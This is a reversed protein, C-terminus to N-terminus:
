FLLPQQLDAPVVIILLKCFNGFEAYLLHLFFALIIEIKHHLDQKQDKKLVFLQFFGRIVYLREWLCGSPFIPFGALNRNLPLNAACGGHRGGPPLHGAPGSSSHPRCGTQVISIDSRNLVISELGFVLLLGTDNQLDTSKRGCEEDAGTHASPCSGGPPLWPAGAGSRRDYSGSLDSNSLAFCIRPTSRRVSIYTQRQIFDGSQGFAPGTIQLM